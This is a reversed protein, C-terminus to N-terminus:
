IFVNSFASGELIFESSFASSARVSVTGGSYDVHIAARFICRCSCLLSPPAFDKTCLERLLVPIAFSAAHYLSAVLNLIFPILFFFFLYFCCAARQMRLLVAVDFHASRAFMVFLAFAYYHFRFSFHMNRNPIVFPVSFLFYIRTRFSPM